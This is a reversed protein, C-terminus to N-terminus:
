DLEGGMTMWKLFSRHGVEREKILIFMYLMCLLELPEHVRELYLHQPLQPWASQILVVKSRVAAASVVLRVANSSSGNDNDDTKRPAYSIIHGKCSM